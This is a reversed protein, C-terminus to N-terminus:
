KKYNKIFNINFQIYREIYDNSYENVDNKMEEIQEKFEDSNLYDQFLDHFKKKLINNIETKEIVYKFEVSKLKNLAILNHYYNKFNNGKNKIEYLKKKSFIEELTLDLHKKYNKTAINLVLNKQFKEFYPPCKIKKLIKNIKKILYKNCFKRAIKIRMNYEQYLRKKKKVQKGGSNCIRKRKNMVRIKQIFFIKTKRLNQRDPLPDQGMNNKMSKEIHHEPLQDQGMNNKMSKEIHREPLQDQGMNNKMSKEIHREPLQDQGMNNKMSKEIHCEPLPDQGMNNKMSKEIHRDPLPDQGMNNKMSKKIDNFEKIVFSKNIEEKSDNESNENSSPYIFTNGIKKLCIKMAYDTNSNILSNTHLVNEMYSSSDDMEPSGFNISPM